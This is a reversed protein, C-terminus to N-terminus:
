NDSSPLSHTIRKKYNKLRRYFQFLKRHGALWWAIRYCLIVIRGPFGRGAVVWFVNHTKNAWFRKYEADGHGFDFFRINNKCADRIIQMLLIQGISLGSEYKLKFAPWHYYLKGNTIFSYVFAADDGDITMLWLSSLGAEAMNTLLNQYFPQGLVAAGRKKMWSEKQIQAIRELIPPTIEDGTLHTLKVNKNEYLKREKRRITQRSKTSKFKKLYEDFSCGLEICHCIREYGYKYTFGHHNFETILNQTVKDLSFVHKNQFVHAVKERIWTKAVIAIAEPYKPDLLLGLYSPEETGISKGIRIGYLNQVSFPLLAVLKSGDWVVILCPKGKFRNQNIFTQIWTRSFYAPADKARAFLEDWDRSISEIDEKGQLFEGRLDTQGKTKNLDNQLKEKKTITNDM